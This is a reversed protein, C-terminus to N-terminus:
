NRSVLRRLMENEEKLKDIEQKLKDISDKADSVSFIAEKSNTKIGQDKNKQKLELGCALAMKELTSTKVTKGNNKRNNGFTTRTIGTRKSWEYETWTKLNFLHSFMESRNM